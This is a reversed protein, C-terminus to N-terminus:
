AGYLWKNKGFRLSSVFKLLIKTITVATIFSLIVGIFLTAAFGKIPGTGLWYLIAATILTTVNGDVIAAFARQFGLDIATNLTKGSKMEERIRSFIIVNADVGMGLSLIIGAIGPLTVSIGTWALSILTFVALAFLAVSALFGPLRYYLTMFIAILIFAVVGALATVNLAREGLIPSISDVHKAVLRFPLAGARILAALEAAEDLTYRGSISAEGNPIQENVIPAIILEDDMFIAIPKGILRGTAEAFDEKGEENLELSIEYAGTNTNRVVQADKVNSGHLVIKGTPLYKGNEDVLSEDVEQFTLLATKGLEDIASQPNYNTEGSKWPIEVIIRDNEEEITVNRDFIGQNDLRKEIIEKATELQELTPDEADAYLTTYIGGKIDIGYRLDNIGKIKWKGIEPGAALLYTLVVIVLVVLAFKVGYNKKMNKDGKQRM